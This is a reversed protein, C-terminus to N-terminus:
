AGSTIFLQRDVAAVPVARLEAGDVSAQGIYARLDLRSRAAARELVAKEGDSLRITVCNARPVQGWARRGAGSMPSREM